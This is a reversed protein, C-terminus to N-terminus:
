VPRWRTNYSKLQVRRRISFRCNECEETTTVTATSSLSM